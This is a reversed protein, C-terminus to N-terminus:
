AGADAQHERHIRFPLANQLDLDTATREYLVDGTEMDLLQVTEDVIRKHLERTQYIFGQILAQNFTGIDGNLEKIQSKVKKTHTALEEKLAEARKTNECVKRIIDQKLESSLHVPIEEEVVDFKEAKPTAKTVKKKAVKKEECKSKTTSPKKEVVEM